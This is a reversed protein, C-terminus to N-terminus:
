CSQFWNRGDLGQVVDLALAYQHNLLKTLIFCWCGERVALLTTTHPNLKIGDNTKSEVTTKMMSSDIVLKELHGNKLDLRHFRVHVM